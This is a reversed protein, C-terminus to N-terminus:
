EKNDAPAPKFEQASIAAGDALADQGKVIVKDGDNLGIVETTGDRTVGLKVEARKAKDGNALFVHANQGDKIIAESPLLIVGGRKGLVAVGRAFM